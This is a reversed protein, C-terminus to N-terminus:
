RSFQWQKVSDVATQINSDTPTLNITFYYEDSSTFKSDSHGSDIGYNLYNVGSTPLEISIDQNFSTADNFMGHISTVHICEM